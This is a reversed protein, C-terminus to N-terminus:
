SLLCQTLVHLHKESVSFFFELVEQPIEGDPPLDAIQIEAQPTASIVPAEAVGQWLAAGAASPVAKGTKSAVAMEVQQKFAFPYKKRFANIDETTEVGNASIMLLDSELLAGAESIFEVIPATADAGLTSNM